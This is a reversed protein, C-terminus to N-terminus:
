LRFSLVEGHPNKWVGGGSECECEGRKRPRPPPPRSFLASLSSPSLIRNSSTVSLLLAAKPSETWSLLFAPYVRHRIYWPRWCALCNDYCPVISFNCLKLMMNWIMNISAVIKPKKRECFTWIMTFGEATGSYFYCVSSGFRCNLWIPFLSKLKIACKRKNLTQALYCVTHVTLSTWPLSGIILSVGLPWWQCVVCYSNIQSM